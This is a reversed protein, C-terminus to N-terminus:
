AYFYAWAGVSNSGKAPVLVKLLLDVGGGMWGWPAMEEKTWELPCFIIFLLSPMFM